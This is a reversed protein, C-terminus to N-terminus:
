FPVLVPFIMTVSLATVGVCVIVNDPTPIMTVGVTDGFDSVYPLTWTL